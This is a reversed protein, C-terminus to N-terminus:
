RRSKAPTQKFQTRSARPTPVSQFPDLASIKVRKQNRVVSPSAQPAPVDQDLRKSIAQAADSTRIWENFTPFDCKQEATNAAPDVRSALAGKRVRPTGVPRTRSPATASSRQSPAPTSVRSFQPHKMPTDSAHVRATSAASKLSRKSTSTTTTAVPSSTTGSAFSVRTKRKSAPTKTPSKVQSAEENSEDDSQQAGHRVAELKSRLEHGIAEPEAQVGFTRAFPVDLESIVAALEKRTTAVREARSTPKEAPSTAEAQELHRRSRRLPTVVYDSGILTKMKKSTPIVEAVIVTGGQEEGESTERAKSRSQRRASPVSSQTIVADIDAEWNISMILDDDVGAKQMEAPLPPLDQGGFSELAAKRAAIVAKMQEVETRHAIDSTQKNAMKRRRLDDMLRKLVRKRQDDSMFSLQPRQEDALNGDEEDENEDEDEYVLKGAISIDDRSQLESPRSARRNVRSASRSGLDLVRQEDFANPDALSVRIPSDLALRKRVSGCPSHQSRDAESAASACDSLSGFPTRPDSTIDVCSPTMPICTPKPLDPLNHDGGPGITLSSTEHVSAHSAACPIGRLSEHSSHISLLSVDCSASDNVIQLSVDLSDEGAHDVVPANEAASAQSLKRQHRVLRQAVDICQSQTSSASTGVSRPSADESVKKVGKPGIVLKVTSLSPSVCQSGAASLTQAAIEHALQPIAPDSEHSLVQSSVASENQDDVPLISSTDIETVVVGEDHRDELKSKEPASKQRKRTTRTSISSRPLKRDSDLPAVNSPAQSLKDPSLFRQLSSEEKVIRSRNNVLQQSPSVGVLNVKHVDLNYTATFGDPDACVTTVQRVLEVGSANGSIDLIPDLTPVAPMTTHSVYKPLTSLSAAHAFKEEVPKTPSPVFDVPKTPSVDGAACHDVLAAEAQALSEDLSRQVHNPMPTVSISNAETAIPKSYSNSAPEDESDELILKRISQAIPTQCTDRINRSGAKASRSVSKLIRDAVQTSFSQVRDIVSPSSEVGHSSLRQEYIQELSEELECLSEDLLRQEDTDIANDDLGPEDLDDQSAGAADSESKIFECVWDLDYFKEPASAINAREILGILAERIQGKPQIDNRAASVLTKYAGAINGLVEHAGATVIAFQASKIATQASKFRARESSSAPGLNLDERREEALQLLDHDRQLLKLLRLARQADGELLASQAALLLTRPRISNVTISDGSGGTSSSTHKTVHASYNSRMVTNTRASAAKRGSRSPSAITPVMFISTHGYSKKLSAIRSERERADPGKSSPTSSGKLIRPRSPLSLIVQKLGAPLTGKPPDM